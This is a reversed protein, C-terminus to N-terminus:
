VTAPEPATLREILEAKTGSTALGRASAEAQLDALSMSEYGGAAMVTPPVESKTPTGVIGWELDITSAEGADGNIPAYPAPLVDGEYIPNTPGVAQSGRPTVRFPTRTGLAVAESLVDETADPDFSQYLTLGLTWKTIGPYDVSGCFTDLTTIATDPMIEVHSALCALDTLGAVTGDRSIEIKPDDLILPTPLPTASL